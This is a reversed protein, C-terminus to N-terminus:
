WGPHGNGPPRNYPWGGTASGTSIWITVTRRSPVYTDGGPSQYYVVAGPVATGPGYQVTWNWGAGSLTRQAASLSLGLVSPVRLGAASASSTGALGSSLVVQVVSGVSVSTGADPSQSVVTGIPASAVESTSVMMLNSGSISTNADVESKGLVNPVLVLGTAGAGGTTSPAVGTPTEAVTFDVTAGPNAATGGVPSQAIVIGAAAKDSQKQSVV